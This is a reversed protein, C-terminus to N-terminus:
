APAGDLRDLLGTNDDLNVGPQLGPAPGGDFVAFVPPGTVVSPADLDALLGRIADEVLDTLTRGSAAAVQKLRRHLDDDVNLTTRM